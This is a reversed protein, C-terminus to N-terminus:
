TPVRTSLATRLPCPACVTRVSLPVACGCLSVGSLVRGCVFVIPCGGSGRVAM